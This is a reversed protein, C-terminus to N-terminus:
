QFLVDGDAFEQDAVGGDGYGGGVVFVVVVVCYCHCHLSAQFIKPQYHINTLM